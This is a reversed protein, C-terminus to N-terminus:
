FGDRELKERIADIIYAQRSPSIGADVATQVREGIRYKLNPKITIREVNAAQWKDIAKIEAKTAPM